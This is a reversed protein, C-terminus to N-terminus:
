KRIGKDKLRVILEAMTGAGKTSNCYGCLLQLNLLEDTGGKSKPVIHDVDFGHKPFKCECGKCVGKQNKYLTNRHEKYPRLKGQTTRKPVDRRHNVAEAWLGQYKQNFREVAVEIARESVDIGCWQRGLHEAAIITTACGCFPDFVMDGPNSSAKIIRELLSLPKQTPYGTREKAQSNLIPMQWVDPLAVKTRDERYVIKEYKGSDIQSQAKKRDYVLLQTVRGGNSSKVTNTTYGRLIHAPQTDKNLKNFTAGPVGYYLIVDHNSQFKDAANTWKGYHWVIENRFSKRGFIADMLMKLYAGATPDCHLYISGTPKLIRRMQILRVAMMILYAKLEESHVSGATNCLSHISPHEFEIEELWAKDLDSLTWSDKFFAGAAQSGIPAAYDKNSNFPPDLYILDVADDDIGRMIELNDETWITRNPINSVGPLRSM